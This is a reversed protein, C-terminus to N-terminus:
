QAPRADLWAHRRERMGTGVIAGTEAPARRHSCSSGDRSHNRLQSADHGVDCCRSRGNENAVRETREEYAHVRTLVTVIDRPQHEKIRRTLPVLDRSLLSTQELAANLQRAKS